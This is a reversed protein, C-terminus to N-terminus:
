RILVAKFFKPTTVRGEVTIQGTSEDVDHWDDLTVAGKIVVRGNYDNIKFDDAKPQTNPSFSAIKFEEAAAKLAEHSNACNLLYAKAADTIPNGESDFEINGIATETGGNCRSDWTLVKALSSPSTGQVSFAGSGIGVDGPKADPAVIVNGNSETKKYIRKAMINAHFPTDGLVIYWGNWEGGDPKYWNAYQVALIQVTTGCLLGTETFSEFSTVFTGSRGGMSHQWTVSLVGPGLTMGFSGYVPYVVDEDRIVGPVLDIEAHACFTVLAFTKLLCKRWRQSLPIMNDSYITRGVDPVTNNNM